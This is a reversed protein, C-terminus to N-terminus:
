SRTPGSNKCKSSARCSRFTKQIKRVWVQKARLMIPKPRAPGVWNGVGTMYVSLSGSYAPQWKHSRTEILAGNWQVSSFKLGTVYSQKIRTVLIFYLRIIFSIVYIPSPWSSCINIMSLYLFMIEFTIDHWKNIEYQIYLCYRSVCQISLKPKCSPLPTFATVIWRSCYPAVTWRNIPLRVVEYSIINM